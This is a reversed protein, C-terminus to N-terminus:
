KLHVDADPTGTELNALGRGEFASRGLDVIAEGSVSLSRDPQRGATKKGVCSQACSSGPPQVRKRLQRVYLPRQFVGCEM